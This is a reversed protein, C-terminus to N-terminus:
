ARSEFGDHRADRHTIRSRQLSFMRPKPLTHRAMCHFSAASRRESRLCHNGAVGSDDREAQM